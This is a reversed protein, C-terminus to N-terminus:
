KRANIQLNRVKGNPMYVRVRYMTKQQNLTVKLVKGNYRQKVEGVIEARSRLQDQSNQSYRQSLYSNTDSILANSNQKFKQDLSVALANSAGFCVALVLLALQATQKLQIFAKIKM